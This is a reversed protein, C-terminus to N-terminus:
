RALEDYKEADTRVVQRRLRQLARHLRVAVNRTSCALVEAIESHTLAEFFHLRIIEQDRHALQRLANDIRGLDIQEDVMQEVDLPSFFRDLLPITWKGRNFHRRIENRAIAYLWGRVREPQRLRPLQRLAKEFTLAVVDQAAAEDGIERVAYAYIQAVYRDYLHTFEAVDGQARRVLMADNTM